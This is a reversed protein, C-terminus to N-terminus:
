IVELIVRKLQPSFIRVYDELLELQAQIQGVLIGPPGYTTYIAQDTNLGIQTRKDPGYIVSSLIGQNDKIFLDGAKLQQKSGDLRQYTEDGSAVDGLLHGEIATLDHAATLLGTQLEAMFMCAVLASPSFIDKGKFVVSEFQLQVHYTKKFARYFDDYAKFVVQEKLAKRDLAGYQIRLKKELDKMALDLNPHNSLNPVNNLALIGIKAEPQEHIWRATKKIM